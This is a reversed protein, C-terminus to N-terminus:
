TPITGETGKQEFPVFSHKENPASDTIISWSILKDSIPPIICNESRAKREEMNIPNGSIFATIVTTCFSKRLVQKLSMKIDIM